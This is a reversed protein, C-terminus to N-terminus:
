HLSPASAGASTYGVHTRPLTYVIAIVALVLVPILLVSGEPGTPGGSLYVSGAPHTAFLHGKVALGSDAVGYLFSQAWDWAAHFGWLSLCFVLGVLGAAIIGLPSEGPNSAHGAGFIVSLIVASTWFGIADAHPTPFFHRYIGSLGRTLAFQLYGRLFIEEASAVLLFGVFWLLGYHIIAPGFLLREDFVLVGTARLVAVLLSLLGVGWALGLGFNRLRRQPAFGYVTMNRLEIKAILWTAGLLCLLGGGEFVFLPRPAILSTTSRAMPFLAQLFPFVCYSLVERFLLFLAIGWGARLGHAGIFIDSVTFARRSPAPDAPDAHEPPPDSREPQTLNM